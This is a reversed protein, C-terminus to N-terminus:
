WKYFMIEHLEALPIIVLVLSAYPEKPVKKATISILQMSIYRCVIGHM